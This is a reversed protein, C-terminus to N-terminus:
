VKYVPYQMATSATKEPSIPHFISYIVNEKSNCIIPQDSIHTVAESPRYPTDALNVSVRTSPVSGLEESMEYDNPEVMHDSNHLSSPGCVPAQKRRQRYLCASVLVYVTVVVLLVLVCLIVMAVPDKPDKHDTQPKAAAPHDTTSVSMATKRIQGFQSTNSAPPSSSSPSSSVTQDETSPGHTSILTPPPGKEVSLKVETFVDNRGFGTSIGCWCKGSDKTTLGTITVTFVGATTDDHLSFRGKVAKTQGAEARIPIDKSGWVCKGRCLYKSYGVYVRCASLLHDFTNGYREM